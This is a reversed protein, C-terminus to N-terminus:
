SSSTADFLDELQEITDSGIVSTPRTELDDRERRALSRRLRESRPRRDSSPGGGSGLSATVGGPMAPQVAHLHPRAITEIDNVLTPLGFEDDDEEGGVDFSMSTPATRPASPATRPASTMQPPPTLLDDSDVTAIEVSEIVDDSDVNLDHSDYILLRAGNSPLPISEAITRTRGPGSPLAESFAEARRALKRMELRWQDPQFLTQMLEEALRHPGYLPDIRALLAQTADLFARATSFREERDFALSCAVLADVEPPLGRRLSSPPTKCREQVMTLLMLPDLKPMQAEGTLLEFLLAGVAFIDIRLDPEQSMLREPAVYGPKGWIRGDLTQATRAESLALGFDGLKVQGDFGLLVNSPSVDRHVLNLPDGEGDKLRHCYDLAALVERTIYLAAPLSYGGHRRVRRTVRELDFGEVLEMALYYIHDVAGIEYVGVINPHSMSIAVRAEDHFRALFEGHRALDPLIKKVACLKQLGLLDGSLAAYIEGM